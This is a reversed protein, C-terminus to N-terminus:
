FKFAANEVSNELTITQINIGGGDLFEIQNDLRGLFDPQNQLSQRVGGVNVTDDLVCADNRWNPQARQTM